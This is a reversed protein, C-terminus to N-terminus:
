QAISSAFPGLRAHVGFAPTAGSNITLTM